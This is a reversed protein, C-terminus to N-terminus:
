NGDARLAVAAGSRHAASGAARRQLGATKSAAERRCRDAKIRARATPTVVRQGPRRSREDMRLLDHDYQWDHETEARGLLQDRRLEGLRRMLEGAHNKQVPKPAAVPLDLPFMRTAKAKSAAALKGTRMAPPVHQHPAHPVPCLNHLSVVCDDFPYPLDLLVGGPVLEVVTGEVGRIDEQPATAAVLVRAGIEAAEVTRRLPPLENPVSRKAAFAIRNHREVDARIEDAHQALVRLRANKEAAALQIVAAGHRRAGHLGAFEVAAAAAIGTLGAAWQHELGGSIRAVAADGRVAAKIAGLLQDHFHSCIHEVQVEERAKAVGERLSRVGKGAKAALWLIRTLKHVQLGERTEAAAARETLARVQAGRESLARQLDAVEARQAAHDRQAEQLQQQLQRVKQQEAGTAEDAAQARRAASDHLANARRLQESVAELQQCAESLRTADGLHAGRAADLEQRAAELERELGEARAEARSREEELRRGLVAGEERADDLRRDAESAASMHKSRELEIQRQADRLAERAEDLAEQREELAGHLEARESEFVQREDRERGAAAERSARLEGLEATLRKVEESLQRNSEEAAEQALRRREAEATLAVEAASLTTNAEEHARMAALAQQLDAQLQAAASRQEALQEELAAVHAATEARQRALRRELSGVEGELEAVRRGRAEAEERAEDRERGTREGEQEAARGREELARAREEAAGLERRAREREAALEEHVRNREDQARARERAVEDDKSRAIREQELRAEEALRERLAEREARAAEDMRAREQSLDALSRRDRELQQQRMQATLSDSGAARSQAELRRETEEGLLARASATDVLWMATVDRVEKRRKREADLMMETQVELDNRMANGEDNLEDLLGRLSSMERAAATYIQELEEAGERRARRLLDLEEEAAALQLPLLRLKALEEQMEEQARLLKIVEGRVRVLEAQGAASEDALRAARETDDAHQKRAQELAASRAALEQQLAAIEEQLAATRADRDQELASIQARLTDAEERMAGEADRWQRAAEAGAAALDAMATSRAAEAARLAALADSAAKAHALVLDASAKRAEVAAAAEDRAAAAAQQAAALEAAAKRLDRQLGSMESDAEPPRGPATPASRARHSAAPIPLPAKSKRSACTRQARRQNEEEVTAALADARSQAAEATGWAEELQAHLAALREQMDKRLREEEEVRERVHAGAAGARGAEARAEAAETRFAEAKAQAAAEVERAMQREAAAASCEALLVQTSLHVECLHFTEDTRMDELELRRAEEAHVLSVLQAAAEEASAAPSYRGVSSSRRRAGHAAPAAQAAALEMRASQQLARLGGAVAGVERALEDSAEEALEARAAASDAKRYLEELYEDTVALVGAESPWPVPGQEVSDAPDSPPDPPPSVASAPSQPARSRALKELSDALRLKLAVQVFMEMPVAPPVSKLGAATRILDTVFLQLGAPDSRLQACLMSPTIRTEPQCQVGYRELRALRDEPLNDSPQCKFLWCVTQVIVSPADFIKETLESVLVAKHGTLLVRAAGLIRVEAAADRAAAQESRRDSFASPTSAVSQRGDSARSDAEGAAPQRPPM